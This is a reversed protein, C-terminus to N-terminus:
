RETGHPWVVDKVPNGGDDHRNIGRGWLQYGGSDLLRYGYSDGTAIDLPLASQSHRILEELSEPYRGAHRHHLELAIALQAQDYESQARIVLEAPVQLYRDYLPTAYQYYFGDFWTSIGGGFFGPDTAIETAALAIGTRPDFQDLSQDITHHILSVNDRIQQQTSLAELISARVLSSATPEGETDYVIAAATNFGGSEYLRTVYRKEAELARRMVDVAGVESLSRSLGFIQDDAWAKLAFGANMTTYLDRRLRTQIRVANIDPSDGM